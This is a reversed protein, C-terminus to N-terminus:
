VTCLSSRSGCWRSGVLQSAVDKIGDTVIVVVFGVVMMMLTNGDAGLACVHRYWRPDDRSVGSWELSCITVVLLSRGYVCSLGLAILHSSNASSLSNDSDFNM